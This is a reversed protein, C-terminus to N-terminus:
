KLYFVNFHKVIADIYSLVQEDTRARPLQYLINSLAKRAIRQIEHAENKKEAHDGYAAALLNDLNQLNLYM